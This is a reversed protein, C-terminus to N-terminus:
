LRIVRRGTLRHVEHLESRRAQSSKRFELRKRLQSYRLIM